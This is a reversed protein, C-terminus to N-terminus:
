ASRPPDPSEGRHSVAVATLATTIPVAAVLGVSGVLTRVIEEAIVQGNIVRGAQFSSIKFLILLPLSAGAYALVLTNVMSAIHDRGIRVASRYLAVAGLSPNAVRLQWVASAQTVTVDDLVGLTGIIIGALLLGQLNVQQATIQLFAAEESSLGTLRSLGVFVVALVATLMLSSLTGLLATTSLANFGHSLYIGAIAIGAAGVIAVLVPNSGELIGPIVFWLLLAFSISLGALSAVGHWRGLAVVVVAFIAALIALSGGRDFDVFFYGPEVGEEVLNTPTRAVIIADGDRIRRPGEPGADRFSITEGADPGEQIKAQVVSCVSGQADVPAGCGGEDLGTVVASYQELASRAEVVVEGADASPWLSVFGFVTAAILPVVAFALRRRVAPSARPLSGQIDDVRM